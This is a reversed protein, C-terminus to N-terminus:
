NECLILIFTLYLYSLFKNHVIELTLFKYWSEPLFQSNYEAWSRGTSDIKCIVIFELACKLFGYIRTVKNDFAPSKYCYFAKSLDTLVM